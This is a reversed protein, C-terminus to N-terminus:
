RGCRLSMQPFGIEQRDDIGLLCVLGRDCHSSLFGLLECLLGEGASM